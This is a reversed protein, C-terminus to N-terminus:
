QTVGSFVGKARGTIYPQSVLTVVQTTFASVYYTRRTITPAGANEGDGATRIAALRRGSRWALFPLVVGIMLVFLTALPSLPNLGNM